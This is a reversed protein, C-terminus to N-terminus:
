WDCDGSRWAQLICTDQGKCSFYTNISLSLLNTEVINARVEFELLESVVLIRAALSPEIAFEIVLVIWNSGVRLNRSCVQGAILQLNPDIDLGRIVGNLFVTVITVASVARM